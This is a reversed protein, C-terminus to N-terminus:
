HQEALVRLTRGILREQAEVPGQHIVAVNELMRELDNREATDLKERLLPALHDVAVDSSEAQAAAHQIYAMRAALDDGPPTIRRMETEIAAEQEPTPTGRALAVLRMLVGAADAPDKIARLPAAKFNAQSKARLKANRRDGLYRELAEMGNGYLFWYLLGTMVAGVIAAIVPM